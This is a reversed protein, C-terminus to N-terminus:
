PFFGKITRLNFVEIKNMGDLVDEEVINFTGKKAMCTIKTKILKLTRVTVVPVDNWMGTM